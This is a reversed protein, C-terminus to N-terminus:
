ENNSILKNKLDNLEKEMLQIKGILLPIFELYNIFKSNKDESVLCPIIEELEQAIIGFHQVCSKDKKFSFSKTKIDLIKNIEEKQLDCINEKLNIDSPHYITGNVTLDGPIIINLTSSQITPTLTIIENPLLPNVSYFWSNSSISNDTAFFQKIQTTPNPVKGGFSSLVPSGLPNVCPISGSASVLNNNNNSFCPISGSLNSHQSM